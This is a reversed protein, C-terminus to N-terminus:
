AAGPKRVKLFEQSIVCAEQKLGSLNPILEYHLPLYSICVHKEILIVKNSLM